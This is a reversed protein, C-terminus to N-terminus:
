LKKTLYYRTHGPPLNNLQGYIRYGHRQYFDPAQFSLTDVFAHKCGRRRAQDEATTLLQHGYGHSRVDDRLWLLDICLWDWFTMGTLGGAIEGTEADRVFVALEQHNDEPAHLLNFAELGRAVVEKDSEAPEDEITLKYTPGM